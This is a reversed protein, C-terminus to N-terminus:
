GAGGPMAGGPMAGGPHLVGRGSLQQAGPVLARADGLLERGASQAPQQNTIWDAQRVPYDRRLVALTSGHRSQGHTACRASSRRVGVDHLTGQDMLRVQGVAPM